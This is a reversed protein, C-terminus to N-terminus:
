PTCLRGAPCLYRSAENFRLSVCRSKQFFGFSSLDYAAKLLVAKDTDKYLISLSFLKMEADSVRQFVGLTLDSRPTLTFFWSQWKVPHHRDDAMYSVITPSAVMM